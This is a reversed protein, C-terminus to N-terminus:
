LGRNPVPPSYFPRGPTKEEGSQVFGLREAQRALLLAGAKKQVWELLDVDIKYPAGWLQLVWPPTEHSHLLTSHGGEMQQGHQKPHLGPCMQIDLSHACMTLEHRAKCVGTDQLGELCLPEWDMQLRTQLSLPAQWLHLVQCRAQSFKMLNVCVWEKFRDHSRQIAYRRELM